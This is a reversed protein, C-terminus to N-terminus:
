FRGGARYKRSVHTSVVVPNWFFMKLIVIFNKFNVIMKNVKESDLGLIMRKKM